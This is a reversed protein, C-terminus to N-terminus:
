KKHKIRKASVERILDSAQLAVFLQARDFHDQNAVRVVIMVDSQM